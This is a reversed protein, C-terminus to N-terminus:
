EPASGSIVYNTVAYLIEGNYEVRSWGSGESYGTRHLNTGNKVQTRVTSEGESTSPETRLNILEKPTIYDDCDTFVIVRGDQTSVRNPNSPKEPTKYALDTTLYATVAYVTQGNYELRSWGTSDNRGTRLLTEGNKLQGVVNGEDGTYPTSRLNIVDKATVTENVDGFTMANGEALANGASNANPIETAAPAETPQITAEPTAAPQQKGTSTKIFDAGSYMSLISAKKINSATKLAGTTIPETSVEPAMVTEPIDTAETPQAETATVMADSDGAGGSHSSLKWLPICILIALIMMGAFVPIMWPRFRFVEEDEDFDDEERYEEYDQDEAPENVLEEYDFSNGEPERESSRNDKKDM